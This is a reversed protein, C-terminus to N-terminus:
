SRVCAYRPPPSTSRQPRQHLQVALFQEIEKLRQTGTAARSLWHDDGHLRVLKVNKGNDHLAKAV